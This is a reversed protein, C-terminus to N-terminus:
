PTKRELAIIARAGLPQLLKIIIVSVITAAQASYCFQNMFIWVLGIGNAACEASWLGTVIIAKAQLPIHYLETLNFFEEVLMAIFFAGSFALPFSAAYHQYALIALGVFIIYFRYTHSMMQKIKEPLLAFCGTKERSPLLRNKLANVIVSSIVMSFPIAFYGITPKIFYVLATMLSGNLLAFLVLKSSIIQRLKAEYLIVSEYLARTLSILFFSIFLAFPRPLQLTTSCWSPLLMITGISVYLAATYLYLKKWLWKISQQEM